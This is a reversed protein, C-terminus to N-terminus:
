TFFSYILVPPKELDGFVKLTHRQQITYDIINIAQQQNIILM